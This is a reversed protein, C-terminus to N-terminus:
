SLMERLWVVPPLSKAYGWGFSGTPHHIYAALATGGDQRKILRASCDLGRMRYMGPLREDFPTNLFTEKGCVLVADVSNDDIMRRYRAAAEASWLSAPPRQRPRNAAIVPIYNAFM